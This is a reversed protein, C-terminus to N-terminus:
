GGGKLFVPADLKLFFRNLLLELQDPVGFGRGGVPPVDHKGGIDFQGLLDLVHRLAPRPPNAQVPRLKQKEVPVFQGGLLLLIGGVTQQRFFDTRFRHDDARQIDSAVAISKGDSSFGNRPHRASRRHRAWGASKLVWNRAM